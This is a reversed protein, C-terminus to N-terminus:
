PATHTWTGTSNMIAYHTSDYGVICIQDTAAGGSVLKYNANPQWGSRDPKEYYVSSINSLTIVTASGPANRVCLQVGAAPTKPTVTCTSSCIVYEANDVVTRSTGVTTTPAPMSAATPAECTLNGSADIAKAYQNASCDTPNSALATATAVNGSTTAITGSTPLTVSTNGTLTLGLSYAGTFTITNNNNNAVGTGGQAPTVVAATTLLTANADPGTYTRRTSTPGSISVNGTTLYSDADPGTYTRRTATPGAFTVNGDPVYSNSNIFTYTKKSSAPGAVAFYANETGGRSSSLQAESSVVGSADTYVPGATSLDLVNVKGDDDTDFTHAWDYVANKSPATSTVGNWSSAFADDSISAGGGTGDGQLTWTNTATCLYFQQGTTADTDMFMDGVACSAPLSTGQPIRVTVSAFNWTGASPTWNGSPTWAGSPSYSGGEELITDAADRVTKARTTSLGTISINGTGDIDHLYKINGASDINSSAVDTSNYDGLTHTRNTSFGVGKVPASYDKYHDGDSTAEFWRFVTPNDTRNVAISDATFTTAHIEDPTETGIPGPDTLDVSGTGCVDWTGDGRLCDDSDGSLKPLLGHKDSTANATTTDTFSLSNETIYEWSPYSTAPTEGPWVYNSMLFKYQTGQSGFIPGALSLTTWTGQGNLFAYPSNNLKPMFGHRSVSANNTTIDSLTLNADTLSSLTIFNAHNYASNHSSIAAAASGVTDYYGSLDPIQNIDLTGSTIKSASLSPIASTNLVGDGDTDYLADWTAQIMDGGGEFSACTDWLGTATNYVVVQGNSCAPLLPMLDGCEWEETTENYVLGQGETCTSPLSAGSGTGCEGWTYTGTGDNQLCGEADEPFYALYLDDKTMAPFHPLKVASIKFTQSFPYDSSDVWFVYQGRSDTTVSHVITNSTKTTYINAPTTTGGLYVSVTAGSIANGNKDTVTDSYKVRQGAHCVIAAFICCLCILWAFRKM